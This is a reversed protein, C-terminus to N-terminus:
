QRWTKVEQPFSMNQTDFVSQRYAQKMDAAAYDEEGSDVSLVKLVIVAEGFIHSFVCHKKM